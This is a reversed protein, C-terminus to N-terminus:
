PLSDNDTKEPVESRRGSIRSMLNPWIPIYRYATYETYIFFAPIDLGSCYYYWFLVEASFCFLEEYFFKRCYILYRVLLRYDPDAILSAIFSSYFNAPNRYPVREIERESSKRPQAAREPRPKDAANDAGNEKERVVENNSDDKSPLAPFEEQSGHQLSRNSGGKGGRVGGGGGGGGPPFLTFGQTSFQFWWCTFFNYGFITKM